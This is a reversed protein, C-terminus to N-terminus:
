VLLITPLTLHTYSVAQRGLVRQRGDGVPVVAAERPPPSRHQLKVLPQRLRFSILVADGAYVHVVGDVRAHPYKHWLRVPIRRSTAAAMSLLLPLLLLLLSGNELLSGKEKRKKQSSSM